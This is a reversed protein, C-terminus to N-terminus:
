TIKKCAWFAPFYFKWNKRSLAPEPLPSIKEGNGKKIRRGSKVRGGVKEWKLPQCLEKERPVNSADVLHL